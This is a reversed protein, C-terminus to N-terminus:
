VIGWIEGEWNQGHGGVKEEEQQAGRQQQHIQGMEMHQRIPMKSQKWPLQLWQGEAEKLLM